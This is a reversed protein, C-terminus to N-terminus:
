QERRGIDMAYKYLSNCRLTVAWYRRRRPHRPVPRRPRAAPTARPPVKPAPPSPTRAPRRAQRPRRLSFARPTPPPPRLVPPLVVVPDRPRCQSSHLLLPLNSSSVQQRTARRLARAIRYSTRVRSCSCSM